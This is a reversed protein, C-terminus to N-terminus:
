HRESTSARADPVEESELLAGKPDQPNGTKATAQRVKDVVDPFPCTRELRQAGSHFQCRLAQRGAEDVPCAHCGECAYPCGKSRAYSPDLQGDTSLREGKSLGFPHLFEGVVARTQHIV